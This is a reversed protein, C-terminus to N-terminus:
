YCLFMESFPIFNILHNRLRVGSLLVFGVVVQVFVFVTSVRLAFSRFWCLLFTLLIVIVAISYCDIVVIGLQHGAPRIRSAAQNVLLGRWTETKNEFIKVECNYHCLISNKIPRKVRKCCKQVYTRVSNSLEFLKRVVTNMDHFNVVRRFSVCYRAGSPTRYILNPGRSTHPQGVRTYLM